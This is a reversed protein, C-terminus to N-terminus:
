LAERLGVLTVHRGDALPLGGMRKDGTSDCTLYVQRKSELEVLLAVLHEPTWGTANLLSTPTAFTQDKMHALITEEHTTLRQKEIWARSGPLEADATIDKELEIIEWLAAGFLKSQISERAVKLRELLTEKDM